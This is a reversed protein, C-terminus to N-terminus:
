WRYSLCVCVCMLGLCFASFHETDRSYGVKLASLDSVHRRKCDAEAEVTSTIGWCRAQVQRPGAGYKDCWNAWYLEPWHKRHPKGTLLGIQIYKMSTIRWCITSSHVAVRESFIRKDWLSHQHGSAPRRPSNEGPLFKWEADGSLLFWQDFQREDVGVAEEQKIRM